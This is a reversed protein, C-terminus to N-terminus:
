RRALVDLRARQREEVALMARRVSGYVISEAGAGMRSLAMLQAEYAAREDPGHRVHWEEHVLISAIKRLADRAGCPLRAAQADRFVASSTVIVISSTRPDVYAEVHASAGGPAIDAFELPPFTEASRGLVNLACVVVAAASWM